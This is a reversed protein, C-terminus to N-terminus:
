NEGRMIRQLNYEDFDFIGCNIMIQRTMHLLYKNNYKDYFCENDYDITKIVEVEFRGPNSHYLVFDGEFIYDKTIINRFVKM